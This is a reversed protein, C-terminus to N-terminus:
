DRAKSLPNLICPHQSSHRLNCICSLDPMATATTYALLQLKLEGRAQSYGYAAPTARFLCFFFGLFCFIYKSSFFIYTCPAILALLLCDPPLSPLQVRILTKFTSYCKIPYLPAPFLTWVVLVRLAGGLMRQTSFSLPEM